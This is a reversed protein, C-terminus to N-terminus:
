PSVEDAPRPATYVYVGRHVRRVLGRQMLRNLAVIAASNTIGLARCVEVPRHPTDPRSRMFELVIQEHSKHGVPRRGSPFSARGRADLARMLNERRLGALDADIDPLLTALEREAAEITGKLELARQLREIPTM